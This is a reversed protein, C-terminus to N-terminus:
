IDESPSSVERETWWKPLYNKLLDAGEPHISYRVVIRDNEDTDYSAERLFGNVQLSKLHEEIERKNFQREEGYESELDRLVDEADATEVTNVYDLVRFRL